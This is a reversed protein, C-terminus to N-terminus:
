GPPWGLHRGALVHLHVHFVSQGADIGENTVVRYGTTSGARGAESALKFLDLVEAADATAVFEGLDRAHRKPIALVHTPAQPNLDRFVLSHESRAVIQAAIAGSFIKCFPCNQADM